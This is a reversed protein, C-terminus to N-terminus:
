SRVSPVSLGNKKVIDRGLLVRVDFQAPLSPNARVPAKLGLRQALLTAQVEHGPRYQIESRVIRTSRVQTLRFQGSLQPSALQRWVKRALGRVQASNRLEIRAEPAPAGPSSNPSEQRDVLQTQAVPQTAGSAIQARILRLNRTALADDPRLALVSQLQTVAAQPDGSEALLVALTNAADLLGPELQRVQQLKQVAAAQNGDSLDRRAQLYLSGAESTPEAATSQRAPEVHFLLGQASASSKLGQNAGVLSCGSLGVFMPLACSGIFLWHALRATPAPWPHTAGPRPQEIM